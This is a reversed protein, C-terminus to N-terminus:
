GSTFVRAQTDSHVTEADGLNNRTAVNEARRMQEERANEQLAQLLETMRGIRKNELPKPVPESQSHTYSRLVQLPEIVLPESRGSDEMLEIHTKSSQSNVSYNVEEGQHSPDNQNGTQPQSPPPVQSAVTQVLLHKPTAIHSSQPPVPPVQYTPVFGNSFNVPQLVVPVVTGRSGVLPVACYPVFANAPPPGNLLRTTEVMRLNDNQENRRKSRPHRALKRTQNKVPLPAENRRIMRVHPAVDNEASVPVYHGPKFVIGRLSTNSNGLRVALLYGADFTAEVVGTVTQGVIGDNGDEIADLQRSQNGNIVALGPPMRPVERRNLSQDKRPRGRKRKVPINPPANSNNGPNLQNMRLFKQLIALQLCLLADKYLLLSICIMIKSFQFQLTDILYVLRVRYNYWLKTMIDKCDGDKWYRNQVEM